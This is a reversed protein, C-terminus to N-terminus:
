RHPKFYTTTRRGAACKPAFEPRIWPLGCTWKWTILKSIRRGAACEPAFEPKINRAKKMTFLRGKQVLNPCLLAIFTM